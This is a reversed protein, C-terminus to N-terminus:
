DERNGWDSRLTVPAPPCESVTSDHLGCWTLQAAALLVDIDEDTRDKGWWEGDPDAWPCPVRFLKATKPTMLPELEAM